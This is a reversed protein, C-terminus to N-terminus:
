MGSRTGARDGRSCGVNRCITEIEISMLQFEGVRLRRAGAKAPDWSGLAPDSGVMALVKGGGRPPKARPWSGTPARPLELLVKSRMTRVTASGAM